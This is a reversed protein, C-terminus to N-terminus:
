IKFHSLRYWFSKKCKENNLEVKLYNNSSELGAGIKELREIELKLSSVEQEFPVLRQIEKQLEEISTQKKDVKEYLEAIEKQKDTIQKQQQELEKQVRNREELAIPARFDEFNKYEVGTQTFREVLVNEGYHHEWVQRKECLIVKVEAQREELERALEIAKRHNNRLSDLEALSVQVTGSIIPLGIDSIRILENKM